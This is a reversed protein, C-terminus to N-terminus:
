ELGSLPTGCLSSAGNSSSFSTRCDFARGLTICQEAPTPRVPVITAMSIPRWCSRLWSGRLKTWSHLSRLLIRKKSFKQLLECGLTDDAHALILNSPTPLLTGHRSPRIKGKELNPFESHYRLSVLEKLHHMEKSWKLFTELSIGTIEPMRALLIWVSMCYTYITFHRRAYAHHQPINRPENDRILTMKLHMLWKRIRSNLNLQLKLM